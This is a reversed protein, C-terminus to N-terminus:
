ESVSLEEFSLLKNRYYEYQKRRLEIEAPLGVTIDNVLKDFKDLINAVRKQEEISPVAIPIENINALSLSKYGAGNVNNKIWDQVNDSSLYYYLYKDDIKPHIVSTNQGLCIDEDGVICVNGFSGVRSIIIDGKQPKYKSIFKNYTEADVRLADTTNVIGGKVDAVRIMPYGNEVYQPTAHLSDIVDSVDSLKKIENKQNLLKGRWFEYQSKRAELESELESELEGFKDLIRVIEEQIELPPVAIVFKELKRMSLNPQSGTSAQIKAEEQIRSTQLIHFLFRPLMIKTNCRMAALPSWINFDSDDTVMAVKGLSASKVFYVDGKQPKYKKSCVEDYEKTIYGRCKNLDIIGDHIAEVSIFPIGDNVLKPTEHPGDTIPQSLCELITKYEVGNPCLEKILDNLRSM